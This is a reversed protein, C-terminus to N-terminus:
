KDGYLLRLIVYGRGTVFIMFKRQFWLYQDVSELVHRVASEEEERLKQKVNSETYCALERPFTYEFILQRRNIHLRALCCFYSIKKIKLLPHVNIKSFNDSRDLFTNSLTLYVKIIKSFACLPHICKADGM